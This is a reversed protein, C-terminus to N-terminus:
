GISKEYSVVRQFGGMSKCFFFLYLRRRLSPSAASRSLSVALARFPVAAQLAERSHRSLSLRLRRIVALLKPTQLKKTTQPKSSRAKRYHYRLLKSFSGFFLISTLVFTGLCRCPSLIATLDEILVGGGSTSAKRGGSLGRWGAGPLWYSLVAQHQWLGCLSM